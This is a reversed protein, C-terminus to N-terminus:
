GTWDAPPAPQSLTWAVHRVPSTNARLIATAETPERADRTRPVKTPRRVHELAVALAIMLTVGGGNTLLQM